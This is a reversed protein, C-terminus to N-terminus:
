GDQGEKAMAELEGILEEKQEKLTPPM